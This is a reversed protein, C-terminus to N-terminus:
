AWIWMYKNKTPVGSTSHAQLCNGRVLKLNKWTLCKFHHAPELGQQARLIEAFDVQKWLSACGPHLLSCSPIDWPFHRISRDPTTLIKCVTKRDIFRLHTYITDNIESSKNGTSWDHELMTPAHAWQHNGINSSVDFISCAGGRSEGGQRFPVDSGAPKWM